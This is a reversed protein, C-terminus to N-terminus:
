VKQKLSDSRMKDIRAKSHEMTKKEDWLYQVSEQGTTARTWKSFNPLEDLQANISEHLLGVKHYAHLRLLFPATLVQYM